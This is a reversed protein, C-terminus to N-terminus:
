AASPTSLQHPNQTLSFFLDELANEVPRLETILLSHRLALGAVREADVSRGDRDKGTVVFTGDDGPTTQIGDRALAGVLDEPTTSRVVLRGTSLLSELPGSAAVVGGSIVVLHDVTARVEGLLHSSLVPQTLGLEPGIVHVIGQDGSDLDYLPIGHARCNRRLADLQAAALADAMPLHRATTPVNHDVTAFTRDPRRVGRGAAALGSFAQPSTVEHM